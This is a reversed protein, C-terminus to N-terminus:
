KSKGPTYVVGQSQTASAGRLLTRNASLHALNPHDEVAYLGKPSNAQNNKLKTRM